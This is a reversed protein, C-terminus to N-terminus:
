LVSMIAEDDDDVWAAKFKKGEPEEDDLESGHGSQELEEEDSDQLEKEEDDM